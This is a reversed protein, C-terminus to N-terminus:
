PYNNYPNEKDEVSPVQPKGQGKPMFMPDDYVTGSLIDTKLLDAWECAKLRARRAM